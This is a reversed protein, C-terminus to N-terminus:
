KFADKRERVTTTGKDEGYRAWSVSLVMRHSLSLVMPCSFATAVPTAHFSSAVHDHRFPVFLAGGRAQGLENCPTLHGPGNVRGNSDMGTIVCATLLLVCLPLLFTRTKSPAGLRRVLWTSVKAFPSPRKVTSCTEITWPSCWSIWTNRGITSEVM